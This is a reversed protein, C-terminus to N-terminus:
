RQIELQSDSTAVIQPKGEYEEILGSACVGQGKYYREPNSPFNVRDSRWIVVTFNPNPYSFHLFTPNGRITRAYQSDVVRGCVKAERGIYSSAESPSIASERPSIPADSQAPDGPYVTECAVALLLILAAGLGGTSQVMGVGKM